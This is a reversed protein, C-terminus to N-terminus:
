SLRQVILRAIQEDAPLKKQISAVHVIVTTIANRQLVTLTENGDFFAADGIGMVNQLTVGEQQNNFDDQAADVSPEININTQVFDQTATKYTCTALGQANSASAQVTVKVIGGIESESALTCANAVPGYTPVGSGTPSGPQHTSTTSSPACASLALILGLLMLPWRMM